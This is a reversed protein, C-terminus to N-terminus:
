ESQSSTTRVVPPPLPGGPPPSRPGFTCTKSGDIDVALTCDATSATKAACSVLWNPVRRSASSNLGPCYLTLTLTPKLVETIPSPRLGSSTLMPPSVTPAPQNPPLAVWFKQRDASFKMTGPEARHATDWAAGIRRTSM